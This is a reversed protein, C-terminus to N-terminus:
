CCEDFSLGNGITSGTWSLIEERYSHGTKKRKKGEIAKVLVEKIKGEEEVDMNLEVRLYGVKTLIVKNFNGGLRQVEENSKIRKLMDIYSVGDAKM